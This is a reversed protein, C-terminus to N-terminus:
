APKWSVLPSRVAAAMLVVMGNADIMTANHLKKNPKEVRM